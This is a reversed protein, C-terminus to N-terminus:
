PRPPARAPKNLLPLFEAYITGKAKESREYAIGHTRM